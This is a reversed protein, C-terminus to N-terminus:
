SRVAAWQLQRDTCAQCSRQPLQWILSVVCFRQHSDLVAVRPIADRDTTPDSDLERVIHIRDLVALYHRAPDTGLIRAAIDVTLNDNDVFRTPFDVPLRNIQGLGLNGSSRDIRLAVPM